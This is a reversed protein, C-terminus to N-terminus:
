SVGVFDTNKEQHEFGYEELTAAIIRREKEDAQRWAKVLNKEELTIYFDDSYRTSKPDDTLDFLYDMSVKYKTAVDRLFKFKPETIDNEYNSYTTNGIGFQKAFPKQDM